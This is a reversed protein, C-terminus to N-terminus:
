WRFRKQLNLLPGINKGELNYHHAQSNRLNHMPDIMHWRIVNFYPLEVLVSYRAGHQSELSQRATATKASKCARVNDLHQDMSRPIWQHTDYGSFNFGDTVNGPFFCCCKSCALNANHGLFGCVKRCAPIDCSVCLLAARIRVIHSYSPISICLGKWLANLDGVLPELFTNVVQSRENPGPIIGAIIINKPLYRVERPLNLLAFYIVGVSYQSHEFPRFWDVNLILGLNNHESLFAQPQVNLFENWIDGDYIDVM